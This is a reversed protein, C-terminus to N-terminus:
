DVRYIGRTGIPKSYLFLWILYIAKKNCQGCMAFAAPGVSPSVRQPAMLMDPIINGEDM